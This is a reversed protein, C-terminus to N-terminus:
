AVQVLDFRIDVSLSDGQAADDIPHDPSPVVVDGDQPWTAAIGICAGTGPALTVATTGDAALVQHRTGRGDDATASAHLNCPKEILMATHSETGTTAACSAADTIDPYYALQFTLVRSLNGQAPTGSVTEGAITCGSIGSDNEGIAKGNSIDCQGARDVLNHLTLYLTADPVSSGDDSSAWIVRRSSTGPMVQGFGLAADASDGAQVNLKLFGAAVVNGDVEGFDSFAAYTSGGIALGIAALGSLVGLVLKRNV